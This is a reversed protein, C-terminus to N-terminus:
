NIINGNEDFDFKNSLIFGIVSEDSDLEDCDDYGFKKMERDIEKAWEEIGSCIENWEGDTYPPDKWDEEEEDFESEYEIDVITYHNSGDFTITFNDLTGEREMILKSVPIDKLIDLDYKGSKGSFGCGSGQSYSLDYYLECFKADTFQADFHNRMDEYVIDDTIDVFSKSNRVNKIAKEQAQESLDEYKM